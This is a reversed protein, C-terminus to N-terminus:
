TWSGAVVSGCVSERCSARGIQDYAPYSFGIFQMEAVPRFGAIAMGFAAGIIGSEAVPTDYVRDAGHKERLGDTIRFVGGTRGIDEGLLVVRDDSALADDLASNLAQALNVEAMRPRVPRNLWPSLRNPTYGPSCRPSRLN